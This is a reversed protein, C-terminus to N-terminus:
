WLIEDYDGDRQDFNQHWKFGRNEFDVRIITKMEGTISVRLGRLGDFPDSIKHLGSKSADRIKTEIQLIIGSCAEAALKRAEAANLRAENADFM